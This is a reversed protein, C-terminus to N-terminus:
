PEASDEVGSEILYEVKVVWQHVLDSIDQIGIDVAHADVLRAVIEACRNPQELAHEAYTQDYDGVRNDSAEALVSNPLLICTFRVHYAIRLDGAPTSNSTRLWRNRIRKAM